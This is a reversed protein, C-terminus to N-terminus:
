PAPRSPPHSRPSRRAGRRTGARLPCPGSRSSGEACRRCIFPFASGRDTPLAKRLAAWCQPGSFTAFFHSKRSKSSKFALFGRSDRRLERSRTGDTARAKKGERMRVRHFAPGAGRRLSGPSCSLKRASRSASALSLARADSAAGGRSPAISSRPGPRGVVAQGPPWRPAPRAQVRVREAPRSPARAAAGFRRHPASRRDDGRASRTDTESGRCLSHVGQNAPEIPGGPRGLHPLGFWDETVGATLSHRSARM